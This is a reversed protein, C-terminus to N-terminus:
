FFVKYFLIIAYIIFYLLGSLFPTFLRDGAGYIIWLVNSILALTLSSITFNDTKKTVIIKYIIPLFSIIGILTALLGSWGLFNIEKLIKMLINVFKKVIKQLEM